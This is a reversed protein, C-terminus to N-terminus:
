YSNSNGYQTVLVSGNGGGHGQVAIQKFLGNEVNLGVMSSYGQANNVEIPVVFRRMGGSPIAHDFSTGSVSGSAETAPVWRMIAPITGAVIEISTTNATLGILSSTSDNASAVRDIAKVTPPIGLSNFPVQNNGVPVGRAYNTGSM